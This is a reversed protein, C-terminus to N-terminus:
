LVLMTRLVCGHGYGAAVVDGAHRRMHLLSSRFFNLLLFLLARHRMVALVRRVRVTSPTSSPPHPSIHRPLAAPM